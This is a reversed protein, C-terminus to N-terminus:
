VLLKNALTYSKKLMLRGTKNFGLSLKQEQTLNYKSKSKKM